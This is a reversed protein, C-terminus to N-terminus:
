DMGMTKKEKVEKRAEGMAVLLMPGTEVLGRVIQMIWLVTIATLGLGM